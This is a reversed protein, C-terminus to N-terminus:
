FSGEEDGTSRFLVGFPAESAVPWHVPTEGAVFVHGLVVTALQHFFLYLVSDKISVSSDDLSHPTIMQCVDHALVHDESIGCGSTRLQLNQELFVCSKWHDILM